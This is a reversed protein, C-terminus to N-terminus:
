DPPTYDHNVAWLVAETRSNVGLKGYINHLHAEVTRVSLFLSQAIDKNTYGQALYTLVEQERETLSGTPEDRTAEGRALALLAKTALEEPLVIEGRGAAIITRALDGVSSDHTIFGTAGERLLGVIQALDYNEILLLIGSDPLTAHLENVLAPRVEPVDVLVVAPMPPPSSSIEALDGVAGYIAIRPQKDLLAQWAARRLNSPAFILLNTAL